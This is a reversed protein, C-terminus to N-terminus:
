LWCYAFSWQEELSLEERRTLVVHLPREWLRVGEWLSEEESFQAFAAKGSSDGPLLVVPFFVLHTEM